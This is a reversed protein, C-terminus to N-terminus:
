MAHDPSQATSGFHLEQQVAIALTNGADQQLTIKLEPLPQHTHCFIAKELIM